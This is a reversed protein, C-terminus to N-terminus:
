HIYAGLICFGGEEDFHQALVFLTEESHTFDARATYSDLDANEMTFSGDLAAAEQVAQAAGERPESCMMGSLAASDSEDLADNVQKMFEDSSIGDPGAGEINSVDPTFGGICTRAGNDLELVTIIGKVPTSNLTGSLQVVYANWGNGPNKLPEGIVSYRASGTIASQVPGEADTRIEDCILGMATETDKGVVADVFRTAFSSPDTTSAQSTETTGAVGDGPPVPQGTAVANQAVVPDRQEVLFGPTLFGTVLFAVLAVATIGIGVILGAKRPKKSPPEFGGQQGPGPWPNGYQHQHIQNPLGAGDAPQRPFPGHPQDPSPQWAPQPPFTM